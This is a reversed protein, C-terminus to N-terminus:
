DRLFAFLHISKPERHKRAHQMIDRPTLYRRSRIYTEVFIVKCVDICKSIRERLCHPDRYTLKVEQNGNVYGLEIALAYVRVSFISKYSVCRYGCTVLLPLRTVERPAPYIIPHGLRILHTRRAECLRMTEDDQFPLWQRTAVIFMWQFMASWDRM